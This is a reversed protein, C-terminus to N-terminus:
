KQFMLLIETSCRDKKHTHIKELDLGMPCIVQKAHYTNHPLENNAPLIGCFTKVDEHCEHRIIRKRSHIKETYTNAVVQHPLRLKRNPYLPKRETM